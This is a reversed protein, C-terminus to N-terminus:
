CQHLRRRGAVRRTFSWRFYQFLGSSSVRNFKWVHTHTSSIKMIFVHLFCFFDRIVIHTTHNYTSEHFQYKHHKETSWELQAVRTVSSRTWIVTPCRLNSERRPWSERHPYLSLTLGFFDRVNQLIFWANIVLKTKWLNREFGIDM